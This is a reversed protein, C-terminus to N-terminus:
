ESLQMQMQRATKYVDQILKLIFAEALFGRISKHKLDREPLCM